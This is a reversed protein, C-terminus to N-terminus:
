KIDNYFQKLLLAAGIQKSVLNPEYVGDAAYKGKTYYQSGSWLYPSNIRKTRYGWGNYAELKYLMGEVSWDKWTSLNDYELADIASYEWEFPPNGVKPRGAPVQVTRAKLSDGNHLHQKFNLSCELAHIIGIFYWPVNTALEVTKYREKGASIRAVYSPLEQVFATQKLTDFFTNYEYKLNETLNM